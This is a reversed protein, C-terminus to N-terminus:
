QTPSVLNGNPTVFEKLFAEKLQPLLAKYAQYDDEKELQKAANVLIQTSHIYFVQAILNRDTVAAKGYLDDKPSYFLWDGYRSSVTSLNKNSSKRIFEVWAK